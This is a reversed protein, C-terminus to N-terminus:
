FFNDRPVASTCLFGAMWHCYKTLFILWVFEAWLMLKAHQKYSTSYWIWMKCSHTHTVFTPVTAPTIIEKISFVYAINILTLTWERWMAVACANWCWVSCTNCDAETHTIHKAMLESWVMCKQTPFVFALVYFIILIAKGLDRMNIDEDDDDGFITM